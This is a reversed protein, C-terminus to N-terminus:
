GTARGRAPNRWQVPMPLPDAHDKAATTPPETTPKVMQANVWDILDAFRVLNRQGPRAAGLEKCAKDFTKRAIGGRAKAAVHDAFVPLPDTGAPEAAQASELLARAARAAEQSALASEEAAKLAALVVAIPSAMM